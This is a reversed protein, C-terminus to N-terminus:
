EIYVDGSIKVNAPNTSFAPCVAKFLLYDGASVAISLGTNSFLVTQASVEKSEILTDTM